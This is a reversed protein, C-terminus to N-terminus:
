TLSVKYYYLNFQSMIYNNPPAPTVLNMTMNGSAFSLPDFTFNSYTRGGIIQTIFSFTQLIGGLYIKSSSLNLSINGGIVLSGAPLNLMFTYNDQDGVKQFDTTYVTENSRSANFFIMAHPSSSTLISTTSYANNSGSVNISITNNGLFAFLFLNGSGAVNKILSAGDLSYFWSIQTDYVLDIVYPTVNLKTSNTAGNINMSINLPIFHINLYSFNFTGDWGNFTFNTGYFEPTAQIIILLSSNTIVIGSAPVSRNQTTSNFSDSLVIHSLYEVRHDFLAEHVISANLNLSFVVQSYNVAVVFFAYNGGELSGINVLGASNSYLIKYYYIESIRYILLFQTNNITSGSTSNAQLSLNYFSSSSYNGSGSLSNKVINVTLGPILENTWLNKNWNVPVLTLNVTLNTSMKFEKSENPLYGPASANISYNSEPVYILYSGNNNTKAYVFYAPDGYLLAKVTANSVPIHTYSNTITGKLADIFASIPKITFNDTTVKLSITVNFVLPLYFGSEALIRYTGPYSFYIKYSGNLSTTSNSRFYTGNVNVIFNINTYAVPLSDFSDTVIGELVYLGKKSYNVSSSYNGLYNSSNYLSPPIIGSSGNFPDINILTLNFDTINSKFFHTTENYGYGTKHAILTSFGMPVMLRYYGKSNSLTTENYNHLLVQAGSLTDGDVNKVYGSVNFKYGNYYVNVIFNHLSKGTENFEYPKPLPNLYPEDTTLQYSDNFLYTTFLGDSLTILKVTSYFGSFELSVNGAVTGNAYETIGSLYYKIAPELSLNLWITKGNLDLTVEKKAYGPAKIFFKGTGGRLATFIFEGSNLTSLAGAPYISIYTYNDIVPNGTSANILTGRIVTTLNGTYSFNYLTANDTDLVSPVLTENQFFTYNLSLNKPPSVKPIKVPGGPPTIHVLFFLSALVVIAVVM